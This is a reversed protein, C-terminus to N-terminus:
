SLQQSPFSSLVSESVNFPDGVRYEIQASLLAHLNKSYAKYASIASQEDRASVWPRTPNIVVFECAYNRRAKSAFEILPTISGLIGSVYLISTPPPRPNGSEDRDYRLLDELIQFAELERPANVTSFYGSEEIKSLVDLDRSRLMDRLKKLTPSAVATLLEGPVEDEKLHAFEIANRLAFELADNPKDNIEKLSKVMGKQHVMVGFRIGERSLVNAIQLFSSALRDRDSHYMASAELVLMCSAGVERAREVVMLKGRRATAKWNIQRFDDGSQYNRLDHFETGPGPFDIAAEGVGRGGKSLIRASTLAAESIRPYVKYSFSAPITAAFEFLSLPGLTWVKVEKAIYRGAFPSLFRADLRLKQADQVGKQIELKLFDVETTVSFVRKTISGRNSSLLLQDTIARDAYLSKSIGASVKTSKRQDEVNEISLWRSPHNMILLVWILEALVLSLAVILVTAIIPDRFLITAIALAISIAVSARGNRTPIIARKKKM